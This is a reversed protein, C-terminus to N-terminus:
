NKDIGKRTLILFRHGMRYIEKGVSDLKYSKTKKAIIKTEVM